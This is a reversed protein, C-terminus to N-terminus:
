RASYAGWVGSSTVKVATSGGGGAKLLHRGARKRAGSCVPACGQVGQMRQLQVATTSVNVCDDGPTAQAEGKLMRASGFNYGSIHSHGSRIYPVARLASSSTAVDRRGETLRDTKVNRATKQKVYLDINCNAFRDPVPTAYDISYPSVLRCRPFCSM